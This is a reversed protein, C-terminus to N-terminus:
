CSRLASWREVTGRELAEERCRKLATLRPTVVLISLKANGHCRRHSEVSMGVHWLDVSIWRWLANSERGLARANLEATQQAWGRFWNLVQTGGMGQKNTNLPISAKGRQREGDRDHVELM